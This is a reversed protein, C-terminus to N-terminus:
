PSPGLSSFDNLINGQTQDFVIYGSIAKIPCAILLAVSSVHTVTALLNLTPRRLSGCSLLLNHHGVFAFGIVGISFGLSSSRFDNLHIM